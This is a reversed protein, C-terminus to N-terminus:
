SDVKIGKLADGLEDMDRKFKAKFEAWGDRSDSKYAALERKLKNNQEELEAMRTREAAKSQDENNLMKINYAAIRRDNAEIRALTEKRFEEVEKAYEVEALRLDDQAKEVKEGAQNVDSTPTECQTLLLGVTVCVVPLLYMSTKM